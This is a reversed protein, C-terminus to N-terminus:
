AEVSRALDSLREVVYRVEDDGLQPFCPISLIRDVSDETVPLETARLPRPLGQQRHDPIPYHVSTGIGQADLGAQLADRAKRSPTMVVALHAVSGASHRTVMRTGTGALADAYRQVIRLREANDDDLSQLGLRLVAAQMEDLRSNMGGPETIQYRQTWGYQRLVRVRDLVDQSQSTVAGGDGAAGLNKTPYFSFSAADGVSGSVRDHSGGGTSQACDEILGIGRRDCLARFGQLDAVNGFLHTVIVADVREDLVAEVSEPTLLLSNPDVDAYVVGIGLRAAAVSAYAGANAAVVVSDGRQLGVGLMALELAESGSAVGLAGRCQTAEAFEREFAEHEPGHVYWGSALVRACAERVRPDTAARSRALDNFPVRMTQNSM